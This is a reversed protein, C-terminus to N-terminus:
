KQNKEISGILSEITNKIQGDGIALPRFKTLEYLKEFSGVHKSVDGSRDNIFEIGIESYNFMEITKQAISIMSTDIGTGINVVDGSQFDGQLALLLIARSTDKVYVFDRSQTGTGTILLPKRRFIAEAFSPFIGKYERTNQRPGYNNFPRAITIPLNFTKSFTYCLTEGFRKSEDYCSRPGNCSVNGFYNEDTPINSPNPDGYIESSSFFLFGKVKKSEKYYDFLEPTSEGSIWIGNEGSNDDRGGYFDETTGCVHVGMDTLLDMMKDIETQM